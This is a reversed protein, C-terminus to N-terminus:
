ITAIQARQSPKLPFNARRQQSILKAGSALFCVIPIDTPLPLTEGEVKLLNINIDWKFGLQQLFLGSYEDQNTVWVYHRILAICISIFIVSRSAQSVLTPVSLYANLHSCNIKNVHLQTRFPM